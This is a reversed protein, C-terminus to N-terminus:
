ILIVQLLFLTTITIITRQIQQRGCLLNLFLNQSVMMILVMLHIRYIFIMILQLLCIVVILIVIVHQSLVGSMLILHLIIQVIVFFMLFLKITLNIM